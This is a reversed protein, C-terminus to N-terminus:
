KGRDVHHINKYIRFYKFNYLFLLTKRERFVSFFPIIYVLFVLGRDFVYYIDRKIM